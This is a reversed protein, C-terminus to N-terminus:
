GPRHCRSRAAGSRSAGPRMRGRVRRRAPAVRGAAGATRGLAGTLLLRRQVQRWQRGGRDARERLGGLYAPGPRVQAGAPDVLRRVVRRHPGLDFPHDPQLLLDPEVHQHVALRLAVVHHLVEGLLQVPERGRLEAPHLRVAAPAHTRRDQEAVHGPGTRHRDAPRRVRLGEGLTRHLAHEGPRHRDQGPREDPVVLRERLGRVLDRECQAVLDVIEHGRADADDLDVLRRQALQQRQPSVSRLAYRSQATPANRSAVPLAGARTWIWM